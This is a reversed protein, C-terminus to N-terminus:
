CNGLKCPHTGWLRWALCQVAHQAVTRCLHRWPSCDPARRAAWLGAFGHLMQVDGPMGGFAARLRVAMVLTAAEGAHGSCLAPPKCPM